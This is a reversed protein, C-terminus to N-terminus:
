FHLRKLYGGAKFVKGPNWGQRTYLPDFYMDRAIM